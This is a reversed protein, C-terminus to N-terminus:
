LIFDDAGLGSLGEVQIQFDATGDGDVDGAVRMDDGDKFARLERAAGSFKANGIYNFAQNGDNNANADIASLDILDEGRVLDELRGGLLLGVDDAQHIPLRRMVALRLAGDEIEAAVHNEIGLANGLRDPRSNFAVIVVTLHHLNHGRDRGVQLDGLEPIRQPHLELIDKVPM